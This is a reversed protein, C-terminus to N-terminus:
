KQVLRKGHSIFGGHESEHSLVEKKVDLKRFRLFADEITLEKGVIASGLDLISEAIINSKEKLINM